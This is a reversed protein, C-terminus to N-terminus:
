IVILVLLNYCTEPINLLLFVALIADDLKTLSNTQDIIYKGATFLL